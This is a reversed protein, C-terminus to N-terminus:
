PTYTRDIILRDTCSGDDNEEIRAIGQATFTLHGAAMIKMGNVFEPDSPTLKTGVKVAPIHHAHGPMDINPKTM